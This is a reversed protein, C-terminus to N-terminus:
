IGLLARLSQALRMDGDVALLGIAWATQPAM